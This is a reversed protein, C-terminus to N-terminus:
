RTGIYIYHTKNLIKFFDNYNTNRALNTAEIKSLAVALLRKMEKETFKPGTPKVTTTYTRWKVTQSENDKLARGKALRMKRM